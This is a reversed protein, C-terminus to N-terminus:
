PGFHYRFEFTAAGGVNRDILAGTTADRTHYSLGRIGVLYVFHGRQWGYAAAYDVEAGQEQQSPLAIGDRGVEGLNTRVNPILNLNLEIFHGNPLPLTAGAAYLALALHAYNLEGNNGNVNSLNIIQTGGGIRYRHHRDLDVMLTANLVGLTASSTGYPGSGLGTVTVTPIGELHLRVSNVRQTFELIAAPFVGSVPPNGEGVHQGGVLAAMVGLDTSTDALAPTTTAVCLFLTAVITWRRM